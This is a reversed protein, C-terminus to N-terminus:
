QLVVSMSPAKCDKVGNLLNFSDTNQSISFNVNINNAEPGFVAVNNLDYKVRDHNMGTKPVPSDYEQVNINLSFLQDGM